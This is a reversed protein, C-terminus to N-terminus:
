INRFDLTSVLIKRRSEESPQPLNERSFVKWNELASKHLHKTTSPIKELKRTRGRFFVPQILSKDEKRASKKM